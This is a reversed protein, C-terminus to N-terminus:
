LETIELVPGQDKNKPRVFYRRDCDPCDVQMPASPGKLTGTRGLLPLIRGCPCLWAANNGTAVALSRTGDRFILNVTEQKQPM